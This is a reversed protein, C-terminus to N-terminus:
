DLPSHTRDDVIPYLCPSTCTDIVTGLTLDSPVAPSKQQQDWQGKKVGDVVDLERYVYALLEDHEARLEVDEYTPMAALDRAMTSLWEEHDLLKANATHAPVLAQPGHNIPTLADHAQQQYAGSTKPNRVFVLPGVHSFALCRHNLLDHLYELDERFRATQETVDGHPINDANPFTTLPEPMPYDSASSSAVDVGMM